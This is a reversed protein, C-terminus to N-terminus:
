AQEKLSNKKNSLKHPNQILDSYSIFIVHNTELSSFCFYEQKYTFVIFGRNHSKCCLLMTYRTRVNLLRKSNDVAVHLEKNQLQLENQIKYLSIYQSLFNTTSSFCFCIVFFLM